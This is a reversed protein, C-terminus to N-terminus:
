GSPDSGDGVWVVVAAREWQCPAADRFYGLLFIKLTQNLFLLELALNTRCCEVFWGALFVVM